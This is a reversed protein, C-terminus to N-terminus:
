SVMLERYMVDMGDAVADWSFTEAARQYGRKRLDELRGPDHLLRELERALQEEDGERVLVGADDVVERLSGSDSAIVAAGHAMAQAPVRGFQEKWKRTALSPVLVIDILDMWRLTEEQNLAGHFTCRHGLGAREAEARMAAEESGAGIVDMVADTGAAARIFARIAIMGGKYPELRSVFGVRLPQNAHAEPPSPVTVGLPLVHIRGTFGRARLREGAETSCPYAAGARTLVLREILSFPPPYRKPLNQATYVCLKARPAEKRVAWFVSAAALSFPEEHIDVIDPRFAKMVRRLESRDYWFLNAERRGHIQVARAVSNRGPESRVLRGGERWEPPCVVQVVHGHRAQLMLERQQFEDVVASHYLRLVRM